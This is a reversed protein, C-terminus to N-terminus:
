RRNSYIMKLALFFSIATVHQRFHLESDLLLGLGKVSRKFNLCDGDIRLRM